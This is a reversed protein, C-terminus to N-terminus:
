PLHAQESTPRERRGAIGIERAVGAIAAREVDLLRERAADLMPMDRAVDLCDSGRSTWCDSGRSVPWVGARSGRGVKGSVVCRSSSASLRSISRQCTRAPPSWPRSSASSWWLGCPIRTQSGVPCKMRWFRAASRIQAPLAVIWLTSPQPRRGPRGGRRGARELRAVPGHRPAQASRSITSASSTCKWRKSPVCPIRSPLQAGMMLLVPSSSPATATNASMVTSFCTSSRRCIMVSESGTRM